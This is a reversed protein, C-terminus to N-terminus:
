QYYMAVPDRRKEKNEAPRVTRIIFSNTDRATFVTSIKNYDLGLNTLINYLLNLRKQQLAYYTTGDIRIEIIIGDNNKAKEGFAQIWKLTKGSIEARNPQFSLRMESPLIKGDKEYQLPDDNFNDEKNKQNDTVNNESKNSFISTLSQLLGGSKEKSSEKKNETEQSTVDNSNQSTVTIKNEEQILEQELKKDNPDSVLQPTLNKDNIIDEPIPILLNNVVEGAVKTTTIDKKLKSDDSLVQTIDKEEQTKNFSIKTNDSKKEEDKIEGIIEVQQMNYLSTNPNKNKEDKINNQLDDIKKWNKPISNEKNALTNEVKESKESSKEASFSNLPTDTHAMALQKSALPSNIAITNGSFLPKVGSYQLPIPQFSAVKSLAKAVTNSNQKKHEQVVSSENLVNHFNTIKDKQNREEFLPLSINALSSIIQEKKSPKKQMETEYSTENPLLVAVDKLPPRIDILHEKEVPTLFNKAFPVSFYSVNNQFLNINKPLFVEKSTQHKACFFSNSVFIFALLSLFFSCICTIFGTKVM